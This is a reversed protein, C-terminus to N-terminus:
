QMKKYQTWLTCFIIIDTILSYINFIGVFYTSAYLILTISSLVILAWKKMKLIFIFGVIYIIATIYIYYAYWHPLEEGILKSLNGTFVYFLTSIVIFFYICSTVIIIWNKEKKM